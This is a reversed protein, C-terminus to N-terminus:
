TESAPMTEFVVTSSHPLDWSVARSAYLSTEPTFVEPDDLTSAVIFTMDPMLEGTKYVQSGCNVCFYNSVTAGSDATVSHQKVQGEVRVQDNPVVLLSLHGNGSLKRCDTCHCNGSFVPEVSGQYAVSGCLCRGSINKM